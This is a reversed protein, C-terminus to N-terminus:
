RAPEGLVLLRQSLRCVVTRDSSRSRRVTGGVTTFNCPKRMVVRSAAIGLGRWAHREHVNLHHRLAAVGDSCNPPMSELAAFIMPMYERLQANATPESASMTTSSALRSGLIM